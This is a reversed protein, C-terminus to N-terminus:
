NYLGLACRLTGFDLRQFLMTSPEVKVKPSLPPSGLTPTCSAGRVFDQESHALFPEGVSIRISLIGHVTVRPIWIAWHLYYKCVQPGLTPM